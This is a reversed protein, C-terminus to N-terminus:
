RLTRQTRLFQKLFQIYKGIYIGQRSNAQLLWLRIGVLDFWPSNQSVQFKNVVEVILFKKELVTQAPLQFLIM